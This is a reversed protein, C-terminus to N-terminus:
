APPNFAEGHSWVAWVRGHRHQPGLMEGEEEVKSQPESVMGTVAPCIGRNNSVLAMM